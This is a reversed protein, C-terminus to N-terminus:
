FGCLNRRVPELSGLYVAGVYQTMLMPLLLVFLFLSGKAGPTVAGVAVGGARECPYGIDKSAGALRYSWEISALLNM